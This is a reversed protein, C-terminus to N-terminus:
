YDVPHRHSPGLIIAWGVTEFGSGFRCRMVKDPCLEAVLKKLKGDEDQLQELQRVQNAQLAVFQRKWRYFTPESISVQRCWKVAPVGREVQKLVAVIQQVSFREREM